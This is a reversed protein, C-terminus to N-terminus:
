EEGEKDEVFRVVTSISTNKELEDEYIAKQESTLYETMNKSVQAWKVSRRENTKMAIGDVPGHLLRERLFAKLARERTELIRQERALDELMFYADSVSQPIKESM